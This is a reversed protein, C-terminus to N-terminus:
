SLCKWEEIINYNIATSFIISDVLVISHFVSPLSQVYRWRDRYIDHNQSIGLVENLNGRLLLLHSPTLLASEMVDDGLKTLPRGNIMSEVEGFATHLVEDTMRTADVLIGSFVKRFTRIMGEWASGHHSANPPICKWETLKKSCYSHLLESHALQPQKRASTFNTSRDSYMIYPTGRRAIFSKLCNLFSDAELANLKEIHIARSNFWTFVCGYRQEASRRCKEM